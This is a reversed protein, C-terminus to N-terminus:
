ITGSFVRELIDSAATAKGTGEYVVKGHNLVYARDTIPLLSQLNHEVVMIATQRRENIDKITAFMEKVVKPALGLTPEDLLLLKPETMLGRAIAVLQQQGGSLLGARVNRKARLVPFLEYIGDKRRKTEIRDRLFYAGMDLNEDVSLTAFVRRGQPVFAIGMRVLEHPLPHIKRGEYRVDGTHAILGFIAKLVTSKGAGNPGMLAVIEGEDISLSVDHLVKIEGYGAHINKLELLIEKSM